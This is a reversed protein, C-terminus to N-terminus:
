WLEESAVPRLLRFILMYRNTNGEVKSVKHQYGSANYAHLECEKVPEEQL